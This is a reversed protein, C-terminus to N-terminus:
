DCEIGVLIRLFDKLPRRAFTGTQSCKELSIRVIARKAPFRPFVRILLKWLMKCPLVRLFLLIPRNALLSEGQAPHVKNRWIATFAEVKAGQQGNDLSRFRKLVEPRVVTDDM